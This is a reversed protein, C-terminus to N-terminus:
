RAGLLTQLAERETAVRGTFYGASEAASEPPVGAGALMPLLLRAPISHCGDAGSGQEMERIREEVEPLVEILADVIRPDFQAGSQARIIAVAQERTLPDRYPRDATLADFVDALAVIRGGLPIEEGRLGRPYGTGDWREHHSMVIPVVPWPFGVPELIAAGIEVHQKIIEFEEGTLRDPKCLIPEPIGVKGIDHLLSGIRIAQYEEECVGLRRAIAMAYEQVRRVHSSTNQDKADIAMALSAIVSENMQNIQALHRREAALKEVHIRWSYSVLYFPPLLLLVGAGWSQYVLIMLAAACASALYGPGTWLFNERWVRRASLRQSWAVAVATGFTNVLYYVVASVLVPAADHHLRLAGFKGGLATYVVGGAVASLIHNAVNFLLQCTPVGRLGFRWPGHRRNLALGGIAALANALAAQPVGLELLTFYALALGLTM